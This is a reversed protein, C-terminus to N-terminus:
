GFIRKWFSVKEHVVPEAEYKIEPKTNLIPAQSAMQREVLLIAKDVELKSHGQKVLAWKLSEKTYGKRLNKTIYEALDDLYNKDKKMSKIM